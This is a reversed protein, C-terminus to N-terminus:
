QLRKKTAAPLKELDLGIGNSLTSYFRPNWPLEDSLAEILQGCAPQWCELLSPAFPYYDCILLRTNPAHAALFMDEDAVTPFRGSKLKHVIVCGSAEAAM